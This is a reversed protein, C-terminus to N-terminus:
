GNIDDDENFAFFSEAGGRERSEKLGVLSFQLGTGDDYAIRVTLLGSLRSRGGGQLVIRDCCNIHRDCIAGDM